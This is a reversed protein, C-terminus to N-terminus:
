AFGAVLGAMRELQTGTVFEHAPLTITEAAVREAMPFDGPKHGLRQAAPQLHIPVPYHAKADVGNALLYALLADRRETLFQYLYHSSQAQAPLPARTVGPLLRDLTAAVRARAALIGPLKGLLHHAVVAQVTDLRSNYAFEVCTDRDQLGHNRLLRLRAALAGDSTTIVGGDGWVNITKLPHLSFGAAIGFSGCPRGDWTAGAAHAVDEILALGHKRAIAAIATMDCPRGAWHVPMIAETRPTIKAEIAAPDINHDLGIDAFVPVAGATVIAGTTAYFSFSTTVVEGRISLAKLSLFLADTGNGVGIAHATGALAAFAREFADLERGLTFDGRQVVGRIKFWIEDCDAFQQPLYSFPIAATM